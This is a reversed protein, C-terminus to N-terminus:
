GGGGDLGSWVEFGGGIWLGDDVMWRGVVVVLVNGHGNM